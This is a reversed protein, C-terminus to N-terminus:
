YKFNPKFIVGAGVIPGAFAGRGVEDLGIIYDIGTQWLKEEELFTPKTIKKIKM